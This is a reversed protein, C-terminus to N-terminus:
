KLCIKLSPMNQPPCNGSGLSVIKQEETALNPSFALSDVNRVHLYRIGFAGHVSTNAYM